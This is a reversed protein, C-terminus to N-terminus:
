AVSLFSLDLEAELTQLEHQLHQVRQRVSLNPNMINHDMACQTVPSTSNHKIYERIFAEEYTHGDAAVVPNQFIRQLVTM